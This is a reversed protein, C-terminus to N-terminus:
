KRPLEADPRILRKIGAYPVTLVTPGMAYPAIEYSNYYFILGATSPYFNQALAFRNEPFQYGADSLSSAPPLKKMERFRKEAIQDLEPVAGPNLLDNLELREGSQPNFNLYTFVTNPHAGGTFSENDYEFSLISSTAAVLSAKRMVFWPLNYEPVRSQLARYDDAFQLALDGPSDIPKGERIPALVKQRIAMNIKEAIVPTLGSTIQAFEIDTSIPPGERHFSVKDVRISFSPKHSRCAVLFLLTGLLLPLRSM